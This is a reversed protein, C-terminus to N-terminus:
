LNDLDKDHKNNTLGKILGTKVEKKLESTIEQLVTTNNNKNSNVISLAIYQILRGITLNGVWHIFNRLATNEYIWYVLITGVACLGCGILYWDFNISDGVYYLATIPFVLVISSMALVVKRVTKNSIKNILVKKLIGLIAIVTSIVIIGGLLARQWNAFFVTAVKAIFEQM